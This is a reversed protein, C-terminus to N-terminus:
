ASTPRRCWRASCRCASGTAAARRAARVLRDRASALGITGVRRQAPCQRRLAARALYAPHDVARLPREAEAQWWERTTTSTAASSAATTASARDARGALALAAAAADLRDHRRRRRRGPRPGHAARGTAADRYEVGTAPGTPTSSCGAHRLRRSRLEFPAASALPRSSARPLQQVGLRAARGDVAPGRGAARCPSRRGAHRRRGHGRWDAPLESATGRGVPPSCRRHVTSPRHDDPAGRRGRLVAGPRRLTIPWVSGSTSRRATPSTRRRSAHCPRRGTTRCGVWTRPQSYWETAPDDATVHRDTRCGGPARRRVLRTAPPASSSATRRDHHRGGARHRRRRRRRARQAAMAGSPGSGIVVVRDREDIRSSTTATMTCRWRRDRRHRRAPGAAATGPGHAGRGPAPSDLDHRDPHCRRRHDGDCVLRRAAHPRRRGGGGAVALRRVWDLRREDLGTDEGRVFRALLGGGLVGRAIVGMARHARPGPDAHRGTEPDLVGCPCSCAVSRDDAIWAEASSFQECGVGIARVLGDDILRTLEDFGAFEVPEPPGHLQLLDIRDTRLRRLSAIVASRLHEALLRARRLGPRAPAPDARPARPVPLRGEDGRRRRRHRGHLAARRPDGRQPRAGYADATDFLRVGADLAAHVLRIPRPRGACCSGSGLKATGIGLPPSRCGRPASGGNSRARRRHETTTARTATSRGPSATPRTRHDPRHRVDARAAPRAADPQYWNPYFM